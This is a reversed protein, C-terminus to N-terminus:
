SRWRADKNGERALRERHAKANRKRDAERKAAQQKAKKQAKQQEAQQIQQALAGDNGPVLSRAFEKLGM